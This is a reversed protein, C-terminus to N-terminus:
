IAFSAEARLYDILYEEKPYACFGDECDSLSRCACFDHCFEDPLHGESVDALFSALESEDMAKIREFNTM